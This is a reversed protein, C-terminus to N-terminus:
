GAHRSVHRHLEREVRTLRDDVRDFRGNLEASFLDLRSSLADFRSASEAAFADIRGDLRSALADLRTVVLFLTGM